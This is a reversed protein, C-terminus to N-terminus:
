ETPQVTVQRLFVIIENQDKAQVVSALGSEQLTSLGLEGCLVLTDVWILDCRRNAQINALDIDLTDAEVKPIETPQTRPSRRISYCM